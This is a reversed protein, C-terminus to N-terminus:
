ASRMIAHSIASATNAEYDGPADAWGRYGLEDHHIARVMGPPAGYREKRAETTFESPTERFILQPGWLVLATIMLIILMVIVAKATSEVKVM